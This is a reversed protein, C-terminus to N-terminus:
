QRPEESAETSRSLLGLRTTGDDEPAPALAPEAAFATVTLLHQYTEQLDSEVAARAALADGARVAQIVERHHQGASRLDAQSLSVHTFAASRLWLLEILRMRLECDAGAYLTFHFRRNLILREGLSRKRAIVTQHEIEELAPVLAKGMRRVARETIGGELELRLESLEEFQRRSLLPVAITRNSRTELAGEAVLRGMAERVPMPSTGLAEAVTRLSITQGPAFIGDMLARRLETYVHGNLATPQYDSTVFRGLVARPKKPPPM